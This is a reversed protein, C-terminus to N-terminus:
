KHVELCINLTTDYITSIQQCTLIYPRPVLVPVSALWTAPHREDLVQTLLVTRDEPRILSVLPMIVETSCFVKFIAKNTLITLVYHATVHTLQDEPNGVLDSM